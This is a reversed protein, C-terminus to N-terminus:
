SAAAMEAASRSTGRGRSGTTSARSSTDPAGQDAPHPARSPTSSRRERTSSEYRRLRSRFRPLGLRRELVGAVVAHGRASLHRGDGLFPSRESRSARRAARALSPLADISRVGAVALARRLFRQPRRWDADLERLQRRWAPRVAVDVQWAEPLLLVTPTARARRAHDAIEVLLRATIRLASRDRETPHASYIRHWVRVPGAPARRPADPTALGALANLLASYRMATRYIEILAHLGRPPEVPVGELRLAGDDGIRFRPKPYQFTGASLNDYPDNGVFTAVVVEDPRYRVAESDFLLLEQDTGYGLCAFALAEVGDGDLRAVFTERDGVGDGWTQSDGLVALRRLGERRAVPHFPGRQGAPNITVHTLFGQGGYPGSIGPRNRWGLLPDPEAFYVRNRLHPRPRIGATRLALEGAALGAVVGLVALGCRSRWARPRRSTSVRRM